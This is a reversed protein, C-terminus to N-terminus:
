EDSEMEPEGIVDVEIAMPGRNNRGIGYSVLQDAILEKFGEMRLQTYHVFYEKGDQDCTLFGFGKKANVTTIEPQKSWIEM